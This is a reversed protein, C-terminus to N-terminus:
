NWSLVEDLHETEASCLLEQRQQVVVLVAEGIKGLAKRLSKIEGIPDRGEEAQGHEKKIAKEVVALLQNSDPQEVVRAFNLRHCIMWEIQNEPRQEIRTSRVRVEERRLEVIEERADELAERQLRDAGL